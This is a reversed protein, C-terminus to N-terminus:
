VRSAEFWFYAQLDPDNVIDNWRDRLLPSFQSQSWSGSSNGGIRQHTVFFNVNLATWPAQVNASANFFKRTAGDNDADIRYFIQGDRQLTVTQTASVTISNLENSTIVIENPRREITYAWAPEARAVTLTFAGAIMALALLMRVSLTGMSRFPRPRDAIDM